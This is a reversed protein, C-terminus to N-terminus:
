RLKMEACSLNMPAERAATYNIIQELLWLSYLPSHIIGLQTLNSRMLFYTSCPKLTCVCENTIVHYQTKIPKDEAYDELSM